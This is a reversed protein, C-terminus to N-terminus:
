IFPLGAMGPPEDFLLGIRNPVRQPNSRTPKKNESALSM